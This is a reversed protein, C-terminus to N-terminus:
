GKPMLPARRAMVATCPMSFRPPFRASAVIHTPTPWPTAIAISFSFQRHSGFGDNRAFRLLGFGCSSHIAEDRLKDDPRGLAPGTPQECHRFSRPCVVM